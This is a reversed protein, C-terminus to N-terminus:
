AAAPTRGALRAIIQALEAAEVPKAVYAEFGALLAPEAESRRLAELHDRVEYQRRRARLAAHAASLLTVDHLPRELLTVNGLQEVLELATLSARTTDDAGTLVLLPLDSWTPQRRLMELLSGVGPRVLAEEAIVAAGAGTEADRAVEEITDCVDAALGTRALM